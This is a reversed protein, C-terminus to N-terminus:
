CNSREKNAPNKADILSSNPCPQWNIVEYKGDVNKYVYVTIKESPFSDETESNTYERIETEVQYVGYYDEFIDVWKLNGEMQIDKGALDSKFDM